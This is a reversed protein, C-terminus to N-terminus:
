FVCFEWILYKLFEIQYQKSFYQSDPSDNYYYIRNDLELHLKLQQETINSNEINRTFLILERPDYIQLFRFVEEFVIKHDADMTTECKTEYIMNEGTSLDITSIGVCLINKSSKHSQLAELYICM